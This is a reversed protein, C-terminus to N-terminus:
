LINSGAVLTFTWISECPLSTFSYCYRAICRRTFISGGTNFGLPGVSTLTYWTISTIVTVPFDVFTDRIETLITPTWRKYINTFQVKLKLQQLKTIREYLDERQHTKTINKNSSKRSLFFNLWTMLISWWPDTTSSRILTIM